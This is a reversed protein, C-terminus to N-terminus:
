SASAILFVWLYGISSRYFPEYGNYTKEFAITSTDTPTRQQVLSRIQDVTQNFTTADNDRYAVELTEYHEIIPDIGKRLKVAEAYQAAFLATPDM